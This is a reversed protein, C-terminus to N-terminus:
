GLERAPNFNHAAIAHRNQFFQHSSAVDINNIVATAQIQASTVSATNFDQGAFILDNRNSRNTLNHAIQRKGFGPQAVTELRLM